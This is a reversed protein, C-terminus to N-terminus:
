HMGTVIAATAGAGALSQLTALLARRNNGNDDPVLLIDDGLLQVDPVKRHMLEKLQVPIEHRDGKADARYIYAVKGYYPTLGGASAVVKLVTADSLMRVPVASPRAVNGTVWVKPADPVRIVEGGTLMVTTAPDTNAELENIDIKRPTESGSVSLFLQHGAEPTIWGARALANYITTPNTISFQGPSRVDGVISIVRSAYDTIAVTVLPHVLIQEDILHRAIEVELERPLLGEVRVASQLLPMAITGDSSVRVSKSLNPEGFVSVSLQDNPVIKHEPLVGSNAAAPNMPTVGTIAQSNVPVTSEAATAPRSQAWAPLILLVLVLARRVTM